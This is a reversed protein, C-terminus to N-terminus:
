DGGLVTVSLILNLFVHVKPSVNLGYCPGAIFFIGCGIYTITLTTL